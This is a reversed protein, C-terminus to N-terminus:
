ASTRAPTDDRTIDREPFGGKLFACRPVAVPIADPNNPTPTPGVIVIM